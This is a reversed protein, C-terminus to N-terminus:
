GVAAATRTEAGLGDYPRALQESVAAPPLALIAGIDRNTNVEVVRCLVESTACRSAQPGARRQLLADRRLWCLRCGPWGVAPIPGPGQRAPTVLPTRPPAACWAVMASVAPFAEATPGFAGLWALM